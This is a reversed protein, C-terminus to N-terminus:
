PQLQHQEWHWHQSALSRQDKTRTSRDGLEAKSRYIALSNSFIWPIFSFVDSFTIGLLVSLLFCLLSQVNM